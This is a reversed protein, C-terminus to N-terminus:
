GSFVDVVQGIIPHRGIVDGTEEDRGVNGGHCCGM